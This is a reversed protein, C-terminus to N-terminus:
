NVLFQGRCGGTVWVGNRDWGWTQGEICATGSTQRVLRVDRRITVNCRRDRRDRSDCSIIEGRGGGNNWGGGGGNWHGGGHSPRGREAIFEARCGRTVWVGNRAQGWTEGEICPSGSIQRVLRARGDLPCQQTRNKNSECRVPGSNYGDDYREYQQAHATAGLVLMSPLLAWLWRQKGQTM